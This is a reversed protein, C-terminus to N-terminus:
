NLLLRSSLLRLRRDDRYPEQPTPQLLTDDPAYESRVVTETYKIREQRREWWSSVVVVIVYVIYLVALTAAEWAEILSDSLVVLLFTVALTSFGVDRLFPGRNVTFPKIICMSGVVCSVIFTAAGLLEGIALGGSQARM